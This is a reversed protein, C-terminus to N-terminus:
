DISFNNCTNLAGLVPITERLLIDIQQQKQENSAFHIINHQREPLSRTPTAQAQGTLDEHRCVQRKSALLEQKLGVGCWMNCALNWSLSWEM